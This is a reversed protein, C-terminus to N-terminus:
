FVKGGIPGFKKLIDARTDNDLIDLQQNDIGKIYINKLYVLDKKKKIEYNKM